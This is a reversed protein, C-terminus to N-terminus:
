VTDVGSNESVIDEDGANLSFTARLDLTSGLGAIAATFTQFANTLETGDGDGDFDTDVAPVANFADGDPVSEFHLLSQYGGGDIQFDIHVFDSLDWDENGDSSDDEAADVSFSLDTFSSIDIGAFDLTVPLAAGEGDIDQAAFYAGDNGTIEYTGSITTGVLAGVRSFFDFSGDSFEPTSTSYRTGNGDTTFSETFIVTM